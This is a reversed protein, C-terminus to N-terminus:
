STASGSNPKPQRASDLIAKCDLLTRLAQVLTETDQANLRPRDSSMPYHVSPQQAPPVSPAAPVSAPQAAPQNAAPSPPAPTVLPVAVPTTQEAVAEVDPMFRLTSAASGGLPPFSPQPAPAATEPQPPPSTQSPPSSQPAVPQPPQSPAPQSEPVAAVPDAPAAAPQPAPVPEVAPEAVVPSPGAPLPNTPLPDAPLPNAPTSGNPIAQPIPQGSGQPATPEQPHPEQPRPEPARPQAPEAKAAAAPEAPAAAQSAGQGAVYAIGQERLIRQVGKITYGEDYLLHRIGQLLAIDSPRYYRRGGSRKMPKIQSFRTEWFRLVHQPLDLADAAESITRFADPSKVSTRPM